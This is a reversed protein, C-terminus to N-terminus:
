VVNQGSTCYLLADPMALVGLVAIPPNVDPM